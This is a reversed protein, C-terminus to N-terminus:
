NLVPSVLQAEPCLMKNIAYQTTKYVYGTPTASTMLGADVWPKLIENAYQAQFNKVAQLTLPGFYGTVPLGANMKSNLFSQLMKVEEVNNNSGFKMFTTLVKCSGADTSAGLVEGGALNGAPVTTTRRSGSRGGGSTTNSTTEPTTTAVEESFAACDRDGMDITGDEDNDIGDHCLTFSNEAGEIVEPDSDVELFNACNRDGLDTTGNDDNDIGDHCLVFSNETELVPEDVISVEAQVYSISMVMLIMLLTLGASIKKNTFM